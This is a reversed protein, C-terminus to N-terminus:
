GKHEETVCRCQDLLCEERYAALLRIALKEINWVSPHRFATGDQVCDVYDLMYGHACRRTM